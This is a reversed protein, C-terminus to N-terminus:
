KENDGGRYRLHFLERIMQATKKGVGDVMCLMEVPTGALTYLSGFQSLLAKARKEGINPFAALIHLQKDEDKWKVRPMKPLRPEESTIHIHLGKLYLAAGFPSEVPTTIVVGHKGTPSRKVSASALSSYYADQRLKRYMLEESISGVVLLYSIPANHSLNYLQTDLSGDVLSGIYDSVTKREIPVNGIRYDGVELPVVECEVKLTNVLLSPIKSKQEHVDIQIM